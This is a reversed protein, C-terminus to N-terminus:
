IKALEAPWRKSWINNEVHDDLATHFADGEAFVLFRLTPHNITLGTIEQNNNWGPNTIEGHVESHKMDSTWFWDGSLTFTKVGNGSHQYFNQKVKANIDNQLAVKPRDGQPHVIIAGIKSRAAIFKVPNSPILPGIGNPIEPNRGGTFLPLDALCIYNITLENQLAAALALAHAAGNSSGFICLVGSKQFQGGALEKMQKILQDRVSAIDSNSAGAGARFFVRDQNLDKRRQFYAETGSIQLDKSWNPLSFTTVGDLSLVFDAIM